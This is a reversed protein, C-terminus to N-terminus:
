EPMSFNKDISGKSVVNSNGWSKFAETSIVKNDLLSKRWQEVPVTKSCEDLAHLVQSEREPNHDVLIGLAIVRQDISQRPLDRHRNVLAITCQRIFGYPLDSHPLQKFLKNLQDLTTSKLQALDRLEKLTEALPNPDITFSISHENIFSLVDGPSIGLQTWDLRMSQFKFSVVDPGLRAASMRLCHALVNAGRGGSHLPRLISTLLQFHDPGNQIFHQFIEALYKWGFVYEATWGDDLTSFYARCASAVDAPTILKKNLLRLCLEGAAKREEVSRDMLTEFVLHLLASRHEAPCEEVSDLVNDERSLLLEVTSRAMRQCKTLVIEYNEIPKSNELAAAPGSAKRQAWVGQPGPPVLPSAERSRGSITPHTTTKPSQLQNDDSPKLQGSGQVWNARTPGLKRADQPQQTVALSSPTVPNVSQVSRRKSDPVSQLYQWRLKEETPRRSIVNPQAPLDQNYTMEKWGRERLDCLEQIKFVQHTPLKNSKIHGNLRSFCTDLINKAQIELESGCIQLIILMSRLAEPAASDKLKNLCDRMTKLPVLRCLFLESLLTMNGDYAEKKKLVNTERDEDLIRKVAEDKASAIKADIAVNLDSILTDLPTNFLDQVQRLILSEFSESGPVEFGKLEKCLTAFVKSYKPQRIGKQFVLKALLQLDDSSSLELRRIDTVTEALNGDSVRNLIVNLERSLAKPKDNEATGDKKRLSTPVFAGEVTKVTIGTPLRIIRQPARHPNRRYKWQNAPNTIVALHPLSLIAAPAEKLSLLFDRSYRRRFLTDDSDSEDTETCSEDETSEVDLRTQDVAPASSFKDSLQEASPAIKDSPIFHTALEETSEFEPVTVSCDTMLSSGDYPQIPESSTIKSDHMDLPATPSALDQTKTESTVTPENSEEVPVENSASGLDVIVGTDPHKVTLPCKERPKSLKVSPVAAASVPIQRHMSSTTPPQTQASQLVQPFPFQHYSQQTMVHGYDQTSNPMHSHM